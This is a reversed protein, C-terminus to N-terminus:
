RAWCPVATGRPSISNWAFLPHCAMSPMWGPNKRAPLCAARVPQCATLFDAALNPLFPITLWRAKVPAAPDWSPLLRAPRCACTSIKAYLTFKDGVTKIELTCNADPTNVLTWNASTAKSSRLYQGTGMSRVRFSTGAAEVYWRQSVNNENATNITVNSSSGPVLAKGANGANMFMYVKGSEIQAVAMLPLLLLMSLMTRLSTIMKM